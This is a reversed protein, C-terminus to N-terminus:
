LITQKITEMSLTDEKLVFAVEFNRGNVEINCSSLSSCNYIIQEVTDRDSSKILIQKENIDATLPMEDLLALLAIANNTVLSDSNNDRIDILRWHGSINPQSAPLFSAM